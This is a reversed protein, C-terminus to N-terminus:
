YHLLAFMLATTSEVHRADYDYSLEVRFLKRRDYPSFFTCTLEAGAARIFGTGFDNLGAGIRVKGDLTYCDGTCLNGRPREPAWCSAHAPRPRAAHDDDDPPCLTSSLLGDIVDYRVDLDNKLTLPGARLVDIDEGVVVTDTATGHGEWYNPFRGRWNAVWEDDLAHGMSENVADLDTEWYHPNAARWLDVDAEYRRQWERKLEHAAWLDFGRREIRSDEIRRPSVARLFAASPTELADAGRDIGADPLPSTDRFLARLLRRSEEDIAEARRREEEELRRRLTWDLSEGGSRRRQLWSAREDAASSRA